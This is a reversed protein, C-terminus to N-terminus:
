AIVDITVQGDDIESEFGATILCVIDFVIVEVGFEVEEETM